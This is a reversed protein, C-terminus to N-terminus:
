WITERPKKRSESIATRESPRSGMSVQSELGKEVDAGADKQALQARAQEVRSRLRVKWKKQIKLCLDEAKLQWQVDEIANTLLEKKLLPELMGDKGEKRVQVYENYEKFSWARALQVAEEINIFYDDQHLDDLFHYKELIHRTQRMAGAIMFYMQNNKFQQAMSQLVQVATVDLFPVATACLVVARIKHNM